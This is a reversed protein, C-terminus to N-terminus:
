LGTTEAFGSNGLSVQRMMAAFRPPFIDDCLNNELIVQLCDAFKADGTEMIVRNTCSVIRRLMMQKEFVNM